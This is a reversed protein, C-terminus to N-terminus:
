SLGYRARAMRKAAASAQKPPYRGPKRTRAPKQPPPVYVLEEIVVRTAAEGIEQEVRLECRSPNDEIIVGIGLPNRESRPKLIDLLSKAAGYAGDTDLTRPSIRTITVRANEFPPGPWYRPGFAALVEMHLAKQERGQEAWHQRLKVNMSTIAIPITFRCSRLESM